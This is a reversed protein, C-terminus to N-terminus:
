TLLEPNMSCSEFIMSQADSFPWKVIKYSKLKPHYIATSLRRASLLSKIFLIYKAIFICIDRSDARHGQHYPGPVLVFPGGGYTSFADVYVPRVHACGSNVWGPGM